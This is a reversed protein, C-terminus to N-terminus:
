CWTVVCKGGFILKMDSMRAPNERGSYGYIEDDDEIGDLLAKVAKVQKLNCKGKCDSAFLFYAVQEPLVGDEIFKKTKLNFKRFFEDRGSYPALAMTAYHEGFEQSVANALTMRFRMFGGYGMDAYHNKTCITIGM